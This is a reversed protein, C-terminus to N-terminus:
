SKTIKEPAAPNHHNAKSDIYSALLANEREVVEAEVDRLRAM